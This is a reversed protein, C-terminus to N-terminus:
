SLVSKLFDVLDKFTPRLLPDALWCRSMWEYLEDPCSEPQQLRRGSQVYSRVEWNSIDPYPLAGRTLLEWLVVGYSWVDTQVTYVSKTLSEIAMWKVPLLAQKNHSAYYEKTYIDRSLGFDAIKVVKLEDLMCNRLALDRHVFKHKSLYQMGEAVQKGFEMLERVTIMLTPNSIYTKLNGHQMFPLVIMPLGGQGIAVGLLTLVNRHSFDKMILGEELFAEVTE